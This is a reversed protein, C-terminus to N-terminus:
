GKRRAVTDYYERSISVYGNEFHLKKRTGDRSFSRLIDGRPDENGLCVGHALMLDILSSELMPKNDAEMLLVTAAQLPKLFTLRRPPPEFNPDHRALIAETEDLATVLERVTSRTAKELEQKLRDPEARAAEVLPLFQPDVAKPKAM